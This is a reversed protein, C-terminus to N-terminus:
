DLVITRLNALHVFAYFRAHISQKEVEHLMAVFAFDDEAHESQLDTLIDLFALEKKQLDEDIMQEPALTVTIIRVNAIDVNAKIQLCKDPIDSLEARITELTERDALLAYTEIAIIM